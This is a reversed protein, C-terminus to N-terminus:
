AQATGAEAIAQFRDHDLDLVAGYVHGFIGAELDLLPLFANM